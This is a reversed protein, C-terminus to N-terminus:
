KIKVDARYPLPATINYLYPFPPMFNVLGEQHRFSHLALMESKM